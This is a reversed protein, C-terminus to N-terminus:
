TDISRIFHLTTFETGPHAAPPGSLQVIKKLHNLENRIELIKEVNKAEEVV